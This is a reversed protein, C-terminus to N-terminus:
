ERRGGHAMTALLGRLENAPRDGAIIVPRGDALYEFVASGPSVSDHLRLAQVRHTLTQLWDATSGLQEVLRADVCVGLAWCSVADIFERLEVPSLFCGGVAAEIGVPVGAAEIELRCRQFLQYAFNLTDQYRAFGRADGPHVVPPLTLNLCRAGLDAVQSLTVILQERATDIETATIQTAVAIVPFNEDGDETGTM